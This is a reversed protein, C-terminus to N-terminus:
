FEIGHRYRSYCYQYSVVQYANFISLIMIGLIAFVVTGIIVLLAGLIPIAFVLVLGVVTGIGVMVLTIGGFLLGAFTRIVIWVFVFLIGNQDINFQVSSKSAKYFNIDEDTAASPFYFNLLVMIPYRIFPISRIFRMILCFMAGLAFYQKFNWRFWRFGDTWKLEREHLYQEVMKYASIFLANGFFCIIACIFLLPIILLALVIWGIIPILLLIFVVASTCMAYLGFAVSMILTIVILYATVPRWIRKFLKWSTKFSEGVKVKSPHSGFGNFWKNEDYDSPVEEMEPEYLDPHHELSLGLDTEEDLDDELELDSLDEADSPDLALDEIDPTNEDHESSSVKKRRRVRKKKEVM